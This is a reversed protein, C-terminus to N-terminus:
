VELAVARVVSSVCQLETVVHVTHCIRGCEVVYLAVVVVFVRHVLVVSQVDCQLHQLPVLAFVRLNYHLLM